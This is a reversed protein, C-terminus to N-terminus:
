NCNQMKIKSNKIKVVAKVINEVTLGYKGWLEEQTGSEGFHDNVSISIIPKPCEESLLEAVAGFLGGAKQHDEAVVVGKVKKALALILKKDLPKITHVNVVKCHIKNKSFLESAAKLCEYIIPGTALLLVDDGSDWLVEAKGIEFPSKGTTIEPTDPRVLRIYVPGDLSAMALVAKKAENYDCPSIVTLNPLVRTIAIDELAQHTAGDPGTALGAHSGIIKVNVNNYCVSVRLQDWNRGPSFVAYSGLFPIKGSLALGAGVGMMNQEAVGVEIFREPFKKHFLDLKVSDELDASVVVVRNDKEGAEVLGEGFGQRMSLKKLDNSFIAENLYQKKVLM